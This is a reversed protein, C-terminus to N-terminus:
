RDRDAATGAKAVWTPRVQHIMPTKRRVVDMLRGVEHLIGERTRIRSPGGSESATPFVSAPQQLRARKFSDVVSGLAEAAQQPQTSGVIDSIVAVGDLAKRHRPSVSAHLLHPLNPLHIGGTTREM